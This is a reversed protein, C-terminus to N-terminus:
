STSQAASFAAHDRMAREAQGLHWPFALVRRVNEPTFEMAESGDRWNTWGVVAAVAKDIRSDLKRVLDDVVAETEDAGEPVDEANLIMTAGIRTIAGRVQASDQGVIDMTPHDDYAIGNRDLIEITVPVEEAARAEELARIDM